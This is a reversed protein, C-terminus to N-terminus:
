HKPPSPESKPTPSKRPGEECSELEWPADHLGPTWLPPLGLLLRSHPSLFSSFGPKPASISKELRNELTARLGAGKRGGRGEPRELLASNGCFLGRRDGIAGLTKGAPGILPSHPFAPHSTAGFSPSHTGPSSTRTGQSRGWFSSPIKPTYAKM